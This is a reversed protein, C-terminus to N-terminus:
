FKLDAAMLKECIRVFNQADEQGIADIVQRALSLSHNHVALFDPLRQPLPSVFLQRGVREKQLYGQSCLANITRNMLSKLFNTSKLLYQVSTRGIGDKRYQELILLMVIAENYTLGKTMQSDKLTGNLAVWARLVQEDLLVDSM